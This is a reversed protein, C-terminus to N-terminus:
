VPATNVNSTITDVIREVAKGDIREVILETIENRSKELEHPNKISRAIGDTLKTFNDAFYFCGSEMIEKYHRMTYNSMATNGNRSNSQDYMVGVVPRNNAVSEILVTGATCVVCDVNKLLLVLNDTETYNDGQVYVGPIGILGQYREKWRLDKPHPRIIINLKNRYESDDRWKCISEFIVPESLANAETNGALLASPNNANLNFKNLMEKYAISTDGVAYMDMQPWGTVTVKEPNVGHYNKLAALMNKNQVIYKSYGRYIIGKGVPHDWSAIHGIVPISLKEAAKTIAHSVPMQPNSYVVGGVMEDKLFRTIAPNIFRYKSFYWRRMANYAIDWDPLPGIKSYNWYYNTQGKKIRDVNFGHRLNFRISLPYFGFKNDLFQELHFLISNKFSLYKNNFVDAYRMIRTKSFRDNYSAPDIIGSTAITILRNPYRDELGKLIGSEFFLRSSIPCGLVVLLTEPKNVSM